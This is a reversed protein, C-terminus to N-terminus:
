LHKKKVGKIFNLEKKAIKDKPNISLVEKYVREAKDLQNLEIYSFGIGRKARLLEEKKLHEPSFLKASKEALLYSQLAKKTDKRLHYIHGMESLYKANSPALALAKLITKKALEVENLELLAYAKLYYAMSWTDSLLLASKDENKASLMYFTYEEQTRATYIRKNTNAYITEYDRIVPNFANFIAKKRKKKALLAEGERLLEQHRKDINAYDRPTQLVTDRYDDEIIIRATNNKVIPTCAGLIFLTIILLINKM